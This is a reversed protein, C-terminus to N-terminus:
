RKIPGAMNCYTLPLKKLEAIPKMYEFETFLIRLINVISKLEPTQKYFRLYGNPCHYEYERKNKDTLLEINYSTGDTISM